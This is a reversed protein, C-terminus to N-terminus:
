MKFTSGSDKLKDAMSAFESSSKEVKGIGNTIQGILKNIGVIKKSIDRLENSSEQVSNSVENSATSVGSINKAIENMTASQEEVACVITQSITNVEEIIATIGEIAKVSSDTNSRIDSIQKGIEDIAQSTQKALEKVENAVVAFGKGAEGASAAEITANLALLNTQEAIDKIVDLVKGIENASGELKKMMKNTSKAQDNATKAIESEKQCNDVIEILTSSMEEIATAVTTVSSSMEEVTAAINTMKSSAQESTSAITDSQPGLNSTSNVINKIDSQQKSLGIISNFNDRYNKVINEVKDLFKNSYEAILNFEDSNNTDMRKKLSNESALEKFHSSIEMVPKVTYSGVSYALVINLFVMLPILLIININLQIIIFLILSSFGTCCFVLLAIKSRFSKLFEM